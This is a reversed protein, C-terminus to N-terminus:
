IYIITYSFILLISILSQEYGNNVLAIQEQQLVSECNISCLNVANYFVSDECTCHAADVCNELRSRLVKALARRFRQCTGINDKEPTIHSSLSNLEMVANQEEDQEDKTMSRRCIFVTDRSCTQDCVQKGFGRYALFVQMPLKKGFVMHYQVAAVSAAMQDSCGPYHFCLSIRRVDHCLFFNRTGRRKEISTNNFKFFGLEKRRRVPPHLAALFAERFCNELDLEYCQPAQSASNFLFPTVFIPFSLLLVQM